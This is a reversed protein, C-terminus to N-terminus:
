SEYCTYRKETSINSVRLELLGHGWIRVEGSLIEVWSAEQELHIVANGKSVRFTDHVRCGLSGLIPLMGWATQIRYKMLQM